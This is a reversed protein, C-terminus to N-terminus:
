MFVQFIQLEEHLLVYLTYFWCTVACIFYLVLMYCCMYLIFGVHLLVYLTYFWCTVACIFYLVLMYCCMYLIIVVHLLVYLTYYCCTAACIFYLFLMYCCLVLGCRSLTHYRLTKGYILDIFIVVGDVGNLFPFLFWLQSFDLCFKFHYYSFWYLRCDM